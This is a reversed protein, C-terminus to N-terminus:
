SRIDYETSENELNETYGEQFLLTKLSIKRNETKSTREFFGPM